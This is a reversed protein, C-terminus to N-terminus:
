HCALPRPGQELYAQPNAVAIPTAAEELELALDLWEDAVVLLALSCSELFSFLVM